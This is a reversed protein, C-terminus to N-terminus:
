ISMRYINETKTIAIDLSHKEVVDKNANCSLKKRLSKNEILISCSESIEEPNKASVLLGNHHDKIVEPIGGVSTTIISKGLCMAELLVMPTGEHLSPLVFIDFINLVDIVDERFGVFRVYDLIGLERAYDKTEEMLPGDGAIVFIVNNNKQVVGQVSELFYKHGKVPVMRGVTGIVVADDKINLQKRVSKKDASPSVSTLQIGNQIVFIKKEDFGHSALFAKLEDSVSILVDSLFRENIREVLRHIVGGNMMGRGHHTRIIKINLLRSAIGGIFNEKYGHAHVVDVREKRLLKYIRWILLLGNGSEPFVTVLVGDDTLLSSFVGENFAIVRVSVEPKSHLGRILTYAQMEAGAWVDAAIIHCVSLEGAIM